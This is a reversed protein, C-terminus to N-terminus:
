VQLGWQLILCKYGWSTGAVLVAVWFTRPRWAWRTLPGLPMGVVLSWLATMAAAATLLALLMGAPQTLFSAILNGHAAHTFATTMGCTPCPLGTAVLVGCLPLGLQEHTALGAPDAQLEMAVGLVSSAAILLLLPLLRV